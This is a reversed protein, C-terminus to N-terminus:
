AGFNVVRGRDGQALPANATQFISGASSTNNNNAALAQKLPDQQQLQPAKKANEVDTCNFCPKGNVVQM